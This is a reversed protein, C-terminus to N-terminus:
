NFLGAIRPAFILIGTVAATLAAVLVAAASFDKIDRIKENKSPEIIDSLKEIASNILETLCVIGIVVSILIWEASSIKFIFGLGIVLVSAVLHIRANHETKLLIFLGRFAHKFSRLRSIISFNDSNM